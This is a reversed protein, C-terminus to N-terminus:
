LLIEISPDTSRMAARFLGRRTSSDAIPTELDPTLLAVADGSRVSAGVPRLIKRLIAPEGAVLALTANRTRKRLRQRSLLTRFLPARGKITALVLASTPRTMERVNGLRIECIADEIAVLDGESKLWKEVTLQDAQQVLPLRAEMVSREAFGLEHLISVLRSQLAECVPRSYDYPGTVKEPISKEAVLQDADVVSLGTAHSAEMALLNLQRIRLSLADADSRARFNSSPPRPILSSANLVAVRGQRDEQVFRALETLCERPEPSPDLLESSISTLLMDTGKSVGEETRLLELTKKWGQNGIGTIALRASPARGLALGGDLKRGGEPIGVVLDRV